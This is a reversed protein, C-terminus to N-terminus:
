ITPKEMPKIIGQKVMVRPKTADQFTQKTSWEPGIPLRLSREYQQKSEFPHPLQSALYKVNKKVRKENIIVHGLRADKRKDPKVGEVTTLFRKQRKQQKKSVGEGAWSGWGPLTNDVVKDGEDEIVDQKEQEFDQVVEDGAFAKKVLDHNKLLVPVKDEDDSGSDEDNFPKKATLHGSSTSKGQSKIKEAKKESNGSVPEPLTIDVTEGSNDNGRRRNNRTTQSLWPNEEQQPVDTISSDKQVRGRPAKIPARAQKKGTSGSTVIEVEDEAPAHEAEDDSGIPEEFENRPVSSKKRKPKDAKISGFKQRGVESEAESQSEAGDLERALRKIEADNQAKRSAEANQMFKMSLLKSHPGKFGETDEGAELQDLKQRLKRAEKDSADEAWPDEDDSESSSSGLYDDDERHVRKGEIRKQLEEDRRAMDAVSVRADEDWAARGTQKLGKAWKSERHKAGMRAEARKRDNKEREEDDLDFGAELLAQREMQEMKEREKRHVRRYSKSKIKKIRKARVEERFLLERHKRLEARRAQLEELSLKRAELEEFEQVQQEASKETSDALGSEVLINQITSELDTQPKAVEMKTTPQENPNVLPFSLHEARRNAKVTEIWRDLTEKSKEYAAARELRDQQRKPLPAQLKGPVGTSASKKSAITPDIHKLSNKLRSDTISPILDAVTLKRSSNLGFETPKGKETGSDVRRSPKTTGETEMSSVFSQLKSLGHQNDDDSVSLDDEDSMDDDDDDESQEDSSADHSTKQKPRSGQEQQEDESANMDWATALDVADEGLDDESDEDSNEVDESLDIASKSKKGGSPRKSKSKMTSSGRFSFGEFREEDSSGMAEDSDLESDDDSDVQGIKWEHGESDSGGEGSDDSSEDGTRRRKTGPGDSDEDADRSQRKRKSADDDEEEEGLRHRRIRPKVPFQHEAITLANLSKGAKRRPKAKRPGDDKPRQLQNSQRGAM